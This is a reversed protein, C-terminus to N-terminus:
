GEFDPHRGVKLVYYICIGWISNSEFSDWKFQIKRLPWSELRYRPCSIIKSVQPLNSDVEFCDSVPLKVNRRETYKTEIILYDMQSHFVWKLRQRITCRTSFIMLTAEVKLLLIYCFRVSSEDCCVDNLLGRPFHFICYFKLISASALATLNSTRYSAIVIFVIESLLWCDSQKWRKRKSSPM